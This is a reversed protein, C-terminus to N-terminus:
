QSEDDSDTEYSGSSDSASASSEDSSPAENISMMSTQRKLLSSQSNAKRLTSMARAIPWDTSSEEQVASNRVSAADLAAFIHANASTPATHGPLASIFSSQSKDFTDQTDLGSKLSGLYSDSDISSLRGEGMSSIDSHAKGLEPKFRFSAPRIPARYNSEAIAAWQANLSASSTSETVSAITGGGGRPKKAADARMLLGLTLPVDGAGDREDAKKSKELHILKQVNIMEQLLKAEKSSMRQEEDEIMEALRLADPDEQSGTRSSWYSAPMEAPSSARETSRSSGSESASAISLGDTSTFDPTDFSHAESDDFDDTSMGSEEGLRSTAIGMAAAIGAGIGIAVADDHVNTTSGMMAAIISQQLSEEDNVRTTSVPIERRAFSFPTQESEEDDADDDEGGNSDTEYSSNDNGRGQGGILVRGGDADNTSPSIDAGTPEASWSEGGTPEDKTIESRTPDDDGDSESNDEESESDFQDGVNQREVHHSRGTRLSEGPEKDIDSIYSDSESDGSSSSTESGSEDDSSSSAVEGDGLAEAGAGPGFTSRNTDQKKSSPPSGSPAFNDGWISGHIIPDDRASFPHADWADKSVDAIVVEENQTANESGEDSDSDSDSGSEGSSSSSESGSEEDSSSPVVSNAVNVGVAAV